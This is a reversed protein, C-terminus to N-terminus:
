IREKLRGLGERVARVDGDLKQAGERGKEDSAEFSGLQGFLWTEKMLRTLSLIDEAARVQLRLM